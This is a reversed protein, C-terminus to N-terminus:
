CQMSLFVHGIFAGGALYVVLEGIFIVIVKGDASILFLRKLVACVPQAHAHVEKVRCQYGVLAEAFYIDICAYCGYCAICTNHSMCAICEFHWHVITGSCQAPVNPEVM